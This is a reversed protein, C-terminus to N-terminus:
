DFSVDEIIFLDGYTHTDIHNKITESVTYNITQQGFQHEQFTPM